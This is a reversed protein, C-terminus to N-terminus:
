TITTNSVQIDHMALTFFQCSENSGEITILVNKKEDIPNWTMNLYIYNKEKEKMPTVLFNKLHCSYQNINFVSQNPCEHKIKNM